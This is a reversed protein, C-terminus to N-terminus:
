REKKLRRKRANRESLPNDIKLHDLDGEQLDEQLVANTDVEEGMECKQMKSRKRERALRKYSAKAQRIGEAATTLDM